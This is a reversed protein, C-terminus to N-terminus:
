GLVSWLIVLCVVLAEIFVAIAIIREIQSLNKLKTEPKQNKETM